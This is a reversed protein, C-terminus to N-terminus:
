VRLLYEGWKEQPEGLAHEVGGCSVCLVAGGDPWHKMGRLARKQLLSLKGM